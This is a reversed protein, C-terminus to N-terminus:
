EPSQRPYSLPGVMGDPRLQVVIPVRTIGLEGAGRSQIQVIGVGLEGAKRYATMFGSRPLDDSRIILILLADARSRDPGSGAEIAELRDHMEAVCNDCTPSVILIVSCKEAVADLTTNQGEVTSVTVSPVPRGPRLGPHSYTSIYSLASLLIFLGLSVIALLVRFMKKRRGSSPTM